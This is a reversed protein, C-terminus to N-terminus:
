NRRGADTALLSHATAAEFYVSKDCTFAGFLCRENRTSKGSGFRRVRRRKLTSAIM